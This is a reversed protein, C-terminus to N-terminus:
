IESIYIQKSSLFGGLHNELASQVHKDKLHDFWCNSYSNLRAPRTLKMHVPVGPVIGTTSM